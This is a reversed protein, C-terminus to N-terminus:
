DAIFLRATVYIDYTVRESSLPVPFRVSTWIRNGHMNLPCSLKRVHKERAYDTYSSADEILSFLNKAVVFLAMGHQLQWVPYEGQQSRSPREIDWMSICAPVDYFELPIEFRALEPGVLVDRVIINSHLSPPPASQPPQINWECVAVGNRHDWRRGGHQPEAFITENLKTNIFSINAMPEPEYEVSRTTYFHNIRGSVSVWVSGDTGSYPCGRLEYRHPRLTLGMDARVDYAVYMKLAWVPIYHRVKHIVSDRQLLDIDKKEERQECQQEQETCASGCQTTAKKAKKSM